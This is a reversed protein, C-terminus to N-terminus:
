GRLAAAPPKPSTPFDDAVVLRSTRNFTILAMGLTDHDGHSLVGASILTSRLDPWTAGDVPEGGMEARVFGENAADTALGITDIDDTGGLHRTHQTVLQDWRDPTVMGFWVTLTAAKAAAQAAALAQEAETVPNAPPASYLGAPTDQPGEQVAERAADLTEQAATVADTLTDDLCFEARHLRQRARAKITTIIDDLSAM